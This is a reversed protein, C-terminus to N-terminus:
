KCVENKDNSSGWIVSLLTNCQKNVIPLKCITGDIDNLLGRPLFERNKLIQFWLFFCIQIKYVVLFFVTGLSFFVELIDVTTGLIQYLIAANKLYTVPALLSIANFYKNYEPQNSLLALLSSTGQSHAVLYLKPIKTYNRIYNFIAPYDHYGIDDWSFDWFGSTVDDPDRFTHNRSYFNGRFNPLWVDYGNEAM